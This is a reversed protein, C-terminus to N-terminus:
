LTEVPVVRCLPRPGTIARCREGARTAEALRGQRQELRGLVAWAHASPLLDSGALPRLLALAEDPAGPALAEALEAAIAVSDPRLAHLRRLTDVAWARARARQRETKGRMRAGLRVAADSRIVALALVRQGRELLRDADAAPTARLARPFAELVAAVAQPFDGQELSEEAEHIQENDDLTVREVGNICAAAPPAPLLCVVLAALVIPRTMGHM